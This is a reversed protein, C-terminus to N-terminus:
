VGKYTKGYVINFIDVVVPGFIFVISGAIALIIIVCGLQTVIAGIDSM